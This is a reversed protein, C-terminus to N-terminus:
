APPRLNQLHDLRPRGYEGVCGSFSLGVWWKRVALQGSSWGFSSLLSAASLTWGKSLSRVSSDNKWVFFRLLIRCIKQGSVMELWCSGAWQLWSLMFVMMMPLHHFHIPCTMLLSCSVMMRVARWQVGSPFRLLLLGLFVQRRVTSAYSLVMCCVQPVMWCSAQFQCVHRDKTAARRAVRMTPM